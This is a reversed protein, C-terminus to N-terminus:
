RDRAARPRELRVRGRAGQEERLGALGREPEAARAVGVGAEGRRDGRVARATRRDEPRRLEGALAAVRDRLAGRELPEEGEGRGARLGRVHEVPEGARAVPRSVQGAREGRGGGRERGGRGGGPEVRREPERAAGPVGGGQRREEGVARLRGRAAPSAASAM